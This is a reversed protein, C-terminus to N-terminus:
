ASGICDSALNADPIKRNNLVTAGDVTDLIRLEDEVFRDLLAPRVLVQDFMNWYPWDEYYYTGPPNPGSDGFHNWMPNYFFRREV